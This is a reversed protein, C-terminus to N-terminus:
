QGITLFVNSPSQAQGNLTLQIPQDSPFINSPLTIRVQYLGPGVLAAFLPTVPTGGVTVTLSSSLTYDGTFDTNTPFSSAPGLGLAYLDITQGPTPTGVVRPDAAFTGLLQGTIPNVCTVYFKAPSSGPSVNAYIAPLFETSNVPYPNSTLGQNNVVIEVQGLPVGAPALVDIQTPSVYNPVAAQGGITVTVGGLTTALPQGATPAWSQTTSALNTGYIAVWAGPALGPSYTWPEAVGGQTIAPSPPGTVTQSITFSQGAIVITGSRAAGSNADVTYSVTGSGAGSLGSSAIHIWSSSTVSSWACGPNATVAISGSGGSANFTNTNGSLSYSCTNTGTITFPVTIILVPTHTSDEASTVYINVNWTGPTTAPPNGFIKLGSTATDCFGQFGGNLVSTFTGGAGSYLSGTPTFYEETVVDGQNLDQIITYTYAEADTPAFVLSLPPVNTGCISGQAGSVKSIVLEQVIASPGLFAVQTITLTQGAILLSGTRSGGTNVNATFTVTGPGTGGPGSTITLWSTNSTAGWTCGSPISVNISGAGGQYQVDMAVVPNSDSNVLSATCQGFAASCAVLM